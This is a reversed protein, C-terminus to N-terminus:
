FFTSSAPLRFIMLGSWWSKSKRCESICIENGLYYFFLLNLLFRYASIFINFFSVSVCVLTVKVFQTLRSSPNRSTTLLIKPDRELANAYEDDIHTKPVVTYPFLLQIYGSWYCWPCKFKFKGKLSSFCFVFFRRVVFQLWLVLLWFTREKVM